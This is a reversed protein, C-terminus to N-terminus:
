GSSPGCGAAGTAEHDGEHEDALAHDLVEVPEGVAVVTSPPVSCSMGPPGAALWTAMLCSPVLPPPKKLTFEACGNSFVPGNLLKMSIHAITMMGNAKANVNPRMTLSRRWPRATNAMMNM